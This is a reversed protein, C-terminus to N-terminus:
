AWFCCVTGESRAPHCDHRPGGEHRQATTGTSAPHVSAPNDLTPCQDILDVDMSGRRRPSSPQAPIVAPRPHPPPTQPLDAQRIALRQARPEQAKRILDVVYPIRYGAPRRVPLDVTKPGPWPSGPRTALWRSACRHVDAGSARAPGQRRLRCLRTRFDRDSQAGRTHQTPSLRKRQNTEKSGKWFFHARAFAHLTANSRQTRLVCDMSERRRPFSREHLVRVVAHLCKKKAHPLAFDSSPCVHTRWFIGGARSQRAWIGGWGMPPGPWPCSAGCDRLLLGKGVAYAPPVVPGQAGFGFVSGESREPHCNPPSPHLATPLPSDM